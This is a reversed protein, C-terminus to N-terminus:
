NLLGRDEDPIQLVYVADFSQYTIFTRYVVPNREFAKSPSFTAAQAGCAARLSELDMKHDFDDILALLIAKQRQSLSYDVGDVRAVGRTRVHRLTTRTEDEQIVPGNVAAIREPFFQFKSQSLRGVTGIFTVDYGFLASGHPLPTASSTLVRASGETKDVRIKDLLRRAVSYDDLHRAFYWTQPKGRIVETTGLCWILDPQIEKTASPLTGLGIMLYRIWAPLSVKYTKTLEIGTEVDACEDCYLLVKERGLDRVVRAMEIGCEPCTVYALPAGIVLLRERILEAGGPGLDGHLLAAGNVEPKSQELLRCLLHTANIQATSM